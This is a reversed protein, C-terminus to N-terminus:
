QREVLPLAYANGNLSLALLAADVTDYPGLYLRNQQFENLEHIWFQGSEVVLAYTPARM